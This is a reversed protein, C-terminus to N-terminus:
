VSVSRSSPGWLSSSNPDMVRAGQASEQHGLTGWCGGPQSLAGRDVWHKDLTRVSAVQENSNQPDTHRLRTADQGSTLARKPQRVSSTFTGRHLQSQSGLIPKREIGKAIHFRGQCMITHCRKDRHEKKTQTVMSLQGASIAKKEWM